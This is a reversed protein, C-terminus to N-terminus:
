IKLGVTMNIYGICELPSCAGQHYKLAHFEM